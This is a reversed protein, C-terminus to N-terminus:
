RFYEEIIKKKKNTLRKNKKNKMPGASKRSKAPIAAPNRIKSKKKAAM